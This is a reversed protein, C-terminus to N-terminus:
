VHLYMPCVQMHHVPPQHKSFYNALNPSGHHWLIFYQKQSCRYYHMDMAKTKKQKMTRNTFGEACSNNTTIEQTTDHPWGMEQLMTQLACGEQVNTFCGAKEPVPVGQSHNPVSYPNPLGFRLRSSFLDHGCGKCSASLLHSSCSVDLATGQLTCAKLITVEFPRSLQLDGVGGL